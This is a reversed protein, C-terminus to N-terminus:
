VVSKRDRWRLVGLLAEGRILLITEQLTSVRLRADQLTRMSCFYESNQKDLFFLSPSEAENYVDSASCCKFVLVARDYDGTSLSLMRFSFLCIFKAGCTAVYISRWDSIWWKKMEMYATMPNSGVGDSLVYASYMQRGESEKYHQVENWERFKAINSVIFTAIDLWEGNQCEGGRLMMERKEEMCLINWSSCCIEAAVYPKNSRLKVIKLCSM